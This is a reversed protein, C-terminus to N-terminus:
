RLHMEVHSREWSKAAETKPYKGNWSPGNEGCIICGRQRTVAGNRVYRIISVARSEPHVMRYMAVLTQETKLDKRIEYKELGITTDTHM